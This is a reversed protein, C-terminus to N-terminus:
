ALCDVRCVPLLQLRLHVVREAIGSTDARHQKAIVVRQRAHFPGGFRKRFRSPMHPQLFFVLDHKGNDLAYRRLRPETFQCLLFFLVFLHGGDSSTGNNRGRNASVFGSRKLRSLQGWTPTGKDQAVVDLGSPASVLLESLQKTSAATGLIWSLQQM